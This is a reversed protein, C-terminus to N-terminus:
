YSDRCLGKCNYPCPENTKYCIQQKSPKMEEGTAVKIKVKEGHRYLPGRNACVKSNKYREWRACESKSCQGSEVVNAYYTCWYIGREKSPVAEILEIEDLNYEKAENIYDELPCCFESNGKFYLIENKM